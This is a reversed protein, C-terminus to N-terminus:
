AATLFTTPFKSGVFTLLVTISFNRFNTFTVMSCLNEINNQFGDSLYAQTGVERTQKEVTQTENSNLSLAETQVQCSSQSFSNRRSPMASLLVNKTSAEKM